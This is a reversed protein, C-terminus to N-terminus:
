PRLTLYGDVFSLSSKLYTRVDEKSQYSLMFIMCVSDKSDGGMFNKKFLLFMGAPDSASFSVHSPLTSAWMASIDMRIGM